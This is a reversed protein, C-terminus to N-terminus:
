PVDDYEDYEDPNSEGPVGKYNTLAAMARAYMVDMREAAEIQDKKVQLLENEHRIKQQELRERSSGLKLYHSIVQASATGQELQQEALQEALSILQLERGEPTSALRSRQRSPESRRSRQNAM